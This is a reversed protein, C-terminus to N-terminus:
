RFAEEHEALLQVYTAEATLYAGMAMVQEDNAVRFAEEAEELARRAANRALFARTVADRPDSEM